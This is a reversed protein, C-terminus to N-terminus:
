IVPSTAPPRLAGLDGLLDKIKQARAKLDDAVTTGMITRNREVAGIFSNLHITAFRKLTLSNREKQPHTSALLAEAQKLLNQASLLSSRMETYVVPTLTGNTKLTDIHALLATTLSLPTPVPTSTPVFPESISVPDTNGTFSVTYAVKEDKIINKEVTEITEPGDAFHATAFHYSGNALGTLEVTYTGKVPNEIVVEKFGLPDEQGDYIAGPIANSNKTISKGSPDTVKVDVPSAFWFSLIEDPDPVVIYDKSPEGLALIEFVDEISTTPLAGHGSEIIRRDFLSFFQAQATKTFLGLAKEWWSKERISVVPPEELHASSLLVRNDGETTNKEPSLPDPKGDVWLKGDEETHPTVPIDGVTSVGTGAITHIGDPVRDAFVYPNKNNLNELFPNREQVEDWYDVINGTEKNILYSYTPLLERVSPVFQHIVDYSDEVNGVVKMYWLYTNLLAQQGPDWNKPVLGGAWLTYVDSSGHNPTGLMILQDIDGRYTEGQIYSRAILGGMSHAVIDVKGSDSHELADDLVPILYNTVSDANGQRWDYFVVFYDEGETLGEDEFAQILQDYQKIGPTFDWEDREEVIEAEELEAELLIDLNSSAMTGPIIVIPDRESTQGTASDPLLLTGVILSLSLVFLYKKM